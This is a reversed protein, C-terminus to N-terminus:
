WIRGIGGEPVVLVDGPQLVINSTLDKGSVVDSYNFRFMNQRNGDRRIIMIANKDAFEDLGGALSLTQMVDLRRTATIAGPNRVRGMVFLEHGRTQVVSLTLPPDVYYNGEVLRRKVEAEAMEPTMGAVNIHGALAYSIMGNPLVLVQRRMDEEGWISIDLMDGPQLLYPQINAQQAQAPVGGTFVLTAAVLTASVLAKFMHMCKM